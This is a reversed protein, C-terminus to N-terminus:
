NYIQENRVDSIYLCMANCTHIVFGNSTRYELIVAIQRSRAEKSIFAIQLFLADICRM